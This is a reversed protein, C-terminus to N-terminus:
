VHRTQVLLAALLAGTCSSYYTTIFDMGRTSVSPPTQFGLDRARSTASCCSSTTFLSIGSHVHLAVDCRVASVAHDPLLIMGHTNLLPAAAAAVAAATNCAASAASYHDAPCPLRVKINSCVCMTGACTSIRSFLWTTSQPVERGRRHNALTHICDTAPDLSGTTGLGCCCCFCCCCCDISCSDNETACHAALPCNLV